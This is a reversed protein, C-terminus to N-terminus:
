GGAGVRRKLRNWMTKAEAKSADIMAVALPRLVDVEVMMRQFWLDDIGHESRLIAASEPDDLLEFMRQLGVM